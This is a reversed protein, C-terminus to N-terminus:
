SALGLSDGTITSPDIGLAMLERDAMIELTNVLTGYKGAQKILEYKLKTKIPLGMSTVQSQTTKNKKM